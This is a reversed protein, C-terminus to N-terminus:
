TTSELEQRSLSAPTRATSSASAAAPSGGEAPRVGMDLAQPARGRSSRAQSSSCGGLRAQTASSSMSRGRAARGPRSRARRFPRQTFVSGSTPSVSPSASAASRMRLRPASPPSLLPECFSPWPPDLNPSWPSPPSHPIPPSAAIPYHNNVLPRPLRRGGGPQANKMGLRAPPRRRRLRGRLPPHLPGSVRLTDPGECGGFIYNLRLTERRRCCYPAPSRPGGARGGRQRRVPEGGTEKNGVRLGPLPCM